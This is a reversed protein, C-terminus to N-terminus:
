RLPKPDVSFTCRRLLRYLQRRTARTDAAFSRCWGQLVSLTARGLRGASSCAVRTLGAASSRIAASSRVVAAKGLWSSASPWSRVTFGCSQRFSALRLMRIQSTRFNRSFLALQRRVGDVLSATKEPAEDRPSNTSSVTLPKVTGIANSIRLDTAPFIRAPPQATRSSNFSAPPSVLEGGCISPESDRAPLLETLVASHVPHVTSPAAVRRSDSAYGSDALMSIPAFISNIDGLAAGPAESSNLAVSISEVQDLQCDRAAAEVFQSYVVPSDETYANILSHECLLNIVRPIGRSYAHVFAVAEPEFIFTKAGATRLRHYIYAHTEELTLPATGCRVAIRQRLQRLDHRKLMDELEPQGALVVQLLKESPTELNLLLRVEELTSVPLGQAEDIILVPIQDRRHRELLWQNLALLKDSKVSSKCPIGFDSLVLDLLQDSNLRSNYIVATPMNQRALWGLLRQLLLTKGTGVEGTLLILGTRKCIGSMLQQSAAEILPTPCLYRPNASITFPNERLNFFGFISSSIAQSTQQM